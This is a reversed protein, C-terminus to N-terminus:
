PTQHRSIHAAAKPDPDEKAKDNWHINPDLKKVIYGPHKEKEGVTIFHYVHLTNGKSNSAM